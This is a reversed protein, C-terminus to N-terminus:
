VITSGSAWLAWQPCWSAQTQPVMAHDPKAEPAFAAPTLTILRVIQNLAPVTPLISSHRGKAAGKILVGDDHGSDISTPVREVPSRPM